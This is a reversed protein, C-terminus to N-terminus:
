PTMNYFNLVAWEFGSVGAYGLMTVADGQQIIFTQQGDIFQDVGASGTVTINAAGTSKVTYTVGSLSTNILPLTATAPSGANFVVVHDASTLTYDATKFTYMSRVAGSLHTVAEIKTNVSSTLANTGGDLRLYETASTGGTTVEFTMFGAESTNTPSSIKTTIKGYQTDASTSDKGLFTVGGCFDSAQGANGARTNTLNVVAGYANNANNQAEIIPSTSNEVVMKGTVLVDGGAPTLTIDGDIAFTLDAATANDDVTTITTAGHTTTQIQFYDGNDASSEIRLDVNNPGDEIDLQIGYNFDGGGAEFRAAQVLSGGNTGGQANIHAGYVYTTGADAAHTLTPTVHLGYMINTGNTATTNDMDLQIGYMTNDTTTAGTKDWDIDLGVVSAEATDSYNKDIKVGTVGGDSQVGLATAAIAAANNQIILATNRTGTDASNDDVHVANGTTLGDAGIALVRATTVDNATINVVNATINGANIDLCQQDTDNSNLQVLPVGFAGASANNKVELTAGPSGTNDGISMRNSSGEIFLMHSEDDTAVRFDVDAGGDNFVVEDGAVAEVIIKGDADLTLNAVAADADNTSLTTAGAAGVSIKFQDLINDPSRAIIHTGDNPVTIDVGTNTDAGALVIAVGKMSQTGSTGGTMRCDIGTSNLTGVHTPSDQNFNIAIADHIATQGSAVIGTVDYDVLLGQPDTTYNGISTTGTYNRDITIAPIATNSANATTLTNGDFTLNAEGNISNAGASTLVYNDTANTYTTVLGGAAGNAAATIRGQSDVTIDAATYSGASVATNDLALTVTDTAAATSTLGTGGAVTLTNGNDITQSSGGDAALTFSPTASAASTLRGQADVTIASFTYSGASVATNDLAVTVTDTAAAVTTLGTGGAVTLTNGNDVTQTGSDGALTFSPTASAASTLRGQADVTIASFTYSGASVATNDLAVTVTDTAAATSTLGTGGAITVTNTNAITQSSGGDGALTWSDMLTSGWVRSDIEDTLLTSGNYIVVTNDTGAAVNPINVTSASITVSTQSATLTPTLIGASATIAPVSLANSAFTMSNSGAFAGGNNFQIQTTAGAAAVGAAPIGTIGAGDGTFAGARIGASASLSGSITLTYNPVNTGIGVNGDSDFRMIETNTGKGKFIMAQVVPSEADWVISAKTATDEKFLIRAEQNGPMDFILSPAGSTSEIELGSNGAGVIHLPEDPSTTGVGVSGAYLGSSASFIASATIASASVILRQINNTKLAILDDEFDIQTEAPDGDYHIDGFNQTGKSSNYAM